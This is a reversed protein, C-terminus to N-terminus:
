NTCASAGQAFIVNNELYSTVLASPDTWPNPTGFASKLALDMDGTYGHLAEHFLIAQNLVGQDGSQPNLVSLVNCIGISPRFFVRMGKGPDAPTQSAAARTADQAFFDHVTDFM